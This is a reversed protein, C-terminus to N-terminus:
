RSGATPPVSQLRLEAIRSYIPGTPKLESKMISVSEVRFSGAEADHLKEILERLQEANRPTRSRGITVHGSFPRQERAFRLKELASDVRAALAKMEDGGSVIGVWVVNPRRANPFAGVGSLVADFAPLDKAASEVAKSVADVRDADVGGLFKLTIHFNTEPVWKVDAGSALLEKEIEALRRRVAPALEVAVFLRLKDVLGVKAPL